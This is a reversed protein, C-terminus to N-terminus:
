IRFVEALGIEMYNGAMCVIRTPEPLPPRLKVESIPVAKVDGIQELSQRYGDFNEILYSMMIQPNFDPVGSIEDSIDIVKNDRLIGPIYDNFLVLKM